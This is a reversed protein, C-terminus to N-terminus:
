RLVAALEKDTVEGQFLDIVEGAGDLLFIAPVVVFKRKASLPDVEAPQTDLHIRQVPVTRSQRMASQLATWSEDIRKRTCDCAEVQDVFAIRQIQARVPSGTASSSGSAAAVPSSDVPRNCAFSLLMASSLMVSSLCTPRM